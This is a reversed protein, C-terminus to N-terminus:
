CNLLSRIERERTDLLTGLITCSTHGLFATESSALIVVEHREPSFEKWALKMRLRKTRLDIVRGKGYSAESGM